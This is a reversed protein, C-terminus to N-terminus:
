GGFAVYSLGGTKSGSLTATGTTVTGKIGLALEVEVGAEVEVVTAGSVPITFQGRGAAATDIVVVAEHEQGVQVGDVLLSLTVAADIAGGALDNIFRVDAGWFVLLKGDSEPTVVLAADTPAYSGTPVAAAVVPAEDNRSNLYSGDVDPERNLVDTVVWEDDELAVIVNEGADEERTGVALRDYLAHPVRSLIGEDSEPAMVYAFREIARPYILVEVEEAHSGALAPVTLTELEDPDAVSYAMPTGGDITLLGGDDPDFDSGDEVVIETDTASAAVALTSGAVDEEVNAVIGETIM